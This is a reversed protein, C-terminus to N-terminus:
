VKFIFPTPPEMINFLYSHAYIESIILIIRKLKDKQISIALRQCTNYTKEMYDFEM